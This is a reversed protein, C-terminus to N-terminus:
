FYNVTLFIEHITSVWSFKERFNKNYLNIVLVFKEKYIRVTHLQEGMRDCDMDISLLSLSSHLLTEHKELEAMQRLICM